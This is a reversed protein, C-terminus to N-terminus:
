VSMGKINKYLINATYMIYDLFDYAIEFVKSKKM